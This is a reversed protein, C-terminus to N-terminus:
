SKSQICDIIDDLIQKDTECIKDTGLLDGYKVVLHNKTTVLYYESNTSRFKVRQVDIYNAKFKAGSLMKLVKENKPEKNLVVEQFYRKLYLEIGKANNGTRLHAFRRFLRERMFHTRMNSPSTLSKLQVQRMILLPFNISFTTPLLELYLRLAVNKYSHEDSTKLFDYFLQAVQHAESKEHISEVISAFLHAASQGSVFNKILDAHKLLLQYFPLIGKSLTLFDFNEYSCHSYYYPIPINFPNQELPIPVTCLLQEFCHKFFQSSDGPRIGKLELQINLLYVCFFSQSSYALDYIDCGPTLTFSHRYPHLSSFINITYSKFGQQLPRLSILDLLQIKDLQQIQTLFFPSNGFLVAGIALLIHDNELNLERLMLRNFQTFGKDGVLLGALSGVKGYIHRGIFDLKAGESITSDHQNFLHILRLTTDCTLSRELKAILSLAQHIDGSAFAYEISEISEKHDIALCLQDLAHSNTVPQM